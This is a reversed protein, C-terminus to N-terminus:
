KVTFPLNVLYVQLPSLQLKEVKHDEDTWWMTVQNKEPNLWAYGRIQLLSVQMLISEYNMTDEVISNKRLYIM